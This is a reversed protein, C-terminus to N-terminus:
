PQMESRQRHIDEVSYFASYIDSREELVRSIIELKDPDVRSNQVELKTAERFGSSSIRELVVGNTEIIQEYRILKNAELKSIRRFLWELVIMQRQLCDTESDLLKALEADFREAMPLRGRNVPLDVTQWSAIVALPNRVVGFVEFSPVLEELLACFLANHKVVFVYDDSIDADIKLVGLDVIEPRLRGKEAVPNSPLMGDKQKTVVARDRLLSKRTEAIWNSIQTVAATPRSDITEPDIPEHLAVTNAFRNLLYCCLTTGSRPIGTLLVNTM